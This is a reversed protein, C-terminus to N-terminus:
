KSKFFRSILTLFLMIAFVQLMTLTFEPKFIHIVFNTLITILYVVLYYIMGFGIVLLPLYRWLFNQVSLKFFPLKINLNM